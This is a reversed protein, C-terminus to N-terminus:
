LFNLTPKQLMLFGLLCLGNPLRRREWAFVAQHWSGAGQNEWHPLM